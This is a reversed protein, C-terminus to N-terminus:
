LTNTFFDRYIELVDSENCSNNYLYTELSEHSPASAIIQVIPDGHEPSKTRKIHALASIKLRELSSLGQRADVMDLPITIINGDHECGCEIYFKLGGQTEALIYGEYGQYKAIEGRECYAPDVKLKVKRLNTNKLTNELVAQFKKM